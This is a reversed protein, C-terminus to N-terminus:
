NNKIKNYWGKVEGLREMFKDNNEQVMEDVPQKINNTNLLKEGIELIKDNPSHIVPDIVELAKQPDKLYQVLIAVASSRSVGGTCHVLFDNNNEKMKQKAWELITSIDHENPPREIKGSGTPLPAILDDFNVVLINKIGANDIIDYLKQNTGPFNDRISILNFNRNKITEINKAADLLNTIYVKNM